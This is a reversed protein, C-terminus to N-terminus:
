ASGALPLTSQNGSMGTLRQGQRVSDPLPEGQRKILLPKHDWTEIQSPGGAQFLYIVRKVKAPITSRPAHVDARTEENTLLDAAAIAGLGMGTRSLWHRRSHERQEIKTEPSKM